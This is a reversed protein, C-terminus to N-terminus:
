LRRCMLGTPKLYTITATAVGKLEAGQMNLSFDGVSFGSLTAIDTGYDEYFKAQALTAKKVQNQQYPTLNNLGVGNIRGYTLEDIKSSALELLETPLTDSTAYAM